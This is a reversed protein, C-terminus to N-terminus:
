IKDSVMGSSLGKRKGWGAESEVECIKRFFWRLLDHAMVVVM